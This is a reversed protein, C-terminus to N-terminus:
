SSTRVEQIYYTETASNNSYYVVSTFTAPEFKQLIKEHSEQINAQVISDQDKSHSTTSHDLSDKEEGCNSAWAISYTTSEFRGWKTKNKLKGKNQRCLKSIRGGKMGKMHTRLQRVMSFLATSGLIVLRQPETHNNSQATYMSSISSTYGLRKLM